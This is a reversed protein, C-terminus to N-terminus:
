DMQLPPPRPVREAVRARVVPARKTGRSTTTTAAFTHSRDVVHRWERTHGDRSDVREVEVVAGAAFAYYRAVPDDTRMEALREARPEHVPPADVRRFAAPQWHHDVVVYMLEARAFFEVVDVSEDRAFAARVAASALRRTTTSSNWEIVVVRMHETSAARRLTDDGLVVARAAALTPRVNDVRLQKADRVVARTRARVDGVLAVVPRGECDIAAVVLRRLAAARASVSAEVLRVDDVHWEDRAFREVDAARTADYHTRPGVLTYGRAAFMRRLTTVVTAAASVTTHPTCVVDDDDGVNTTM